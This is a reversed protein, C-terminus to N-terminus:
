CSVYRYRTKRNKIHWSGACVVCGHESSACLANVNKKKLIDDIANRRCAFRTDTARHVCSPRTCATCSCSLQRICTNSVCICYRRLVKTSSMSSAKSTETHHHSNTQQETQLTDMHICWHAFLPADILILFCYFFLCNYMSTASHARYTSPERNLMWGLRWCTHVKACKCQGCQPVWKEENWLFITDNPISRYFDTKVVSNGVVFRWIDFEHSTHVCVHVEVRNKLNNINDSQESFRKVSKRTLDNWNKQILLKKTKWIIRSHKLCWICLDFTCIYLDCVFRVADIEILFNTSRCGM